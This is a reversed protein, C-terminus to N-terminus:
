YAPFWQVTKWAWYLSGLIVGVALFWNPKPHRILSVALAAGFLAALSALVYMLGGGGLWARALFAEM